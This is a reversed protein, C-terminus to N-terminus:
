KTANGRKYFIGLKSYPYECKNFREIKETDYDFLVVDAIAKDKYLKINKVAIDRNALSGNASYNLYELYAIKNHITEKLQKNM